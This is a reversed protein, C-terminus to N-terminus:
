ERSLASEPFRGYRRRWGDEGELMSTLGDSELKVDTVEGTEENTATLSVWDLQELAWLSNHTTEDVAAILLQRVFEQQEDDFSEYKKAIAEAGPYRMRGHLTRFLSDITGDRATAVFQSGFADLAERHSV